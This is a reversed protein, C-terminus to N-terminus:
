IREKRFGLEKSPLLLFISHDASHHASTEYKQWFHLLLYKLYFMYRLSSNDPMAAM